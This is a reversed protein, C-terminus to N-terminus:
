KCYSEGKLTSVCQGGNKCPNPYCSVFGAVVVFFVGFILIIRGLDDDDHTTWQQVYIEEKTKWQTRDLTKNGIRM